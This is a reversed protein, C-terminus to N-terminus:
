LKLETKKIVNHKIYSNINTEYQMSWQIIKRVLSLLGFNASACMKLNKLSTSM